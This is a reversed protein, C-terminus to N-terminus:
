ILSMENMQDIAQKNAQKNAQQINVTEPPFNLLWKILLLTSKYNIYSIM